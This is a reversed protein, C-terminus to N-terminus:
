AWWISRMRVSKRLAITCSFFRNLFASSSQMAPTDAWEVVEAFKAYEQRGRIVGALCGMAETERDWNLGKKSEGRGRWIKLDIIFNDLWTTFAATNDASVSANEVSKWGEKLNNLARTVQAISPMNTTPNFTNDVPHLCHPPM